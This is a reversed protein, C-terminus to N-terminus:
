DRGRELRGPQLGRGPDDRRFVDFLWTVRGPRVVPFHDSVDLEQLFIRGVDVRGVLISRHTIVAAGHHNFQQFLAAILQRSLIEQTM